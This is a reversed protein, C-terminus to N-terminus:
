AGPPQFPDRPVRSQRVRSAETAEIPPEFADAWPRATRVRIAIGVVRVDVARGDFRQDLLGQGVVVPVRVEIVAIM